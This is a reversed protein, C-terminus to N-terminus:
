KLFDFFRKMSSPRQSIEANPEAEAVSVPNLQEESVILVLNNPYLSLQRSRKAMAFHIRGDNDREVVIGWGYEPSFALKGRLDLAVEEVGRQKLASLVYPLLVGVIGPNGPTGEDGGLKEVLQRLEEPAIPSSTVIVVLDSDLRFRLGRRELAAVREIAKEQRM